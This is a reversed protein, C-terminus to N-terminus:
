ALSEWPGWLGTGGLGPQGVYIINAMATLAGNVQVNGPILNGGYTPLVVDNVYALVNANGYLNNIVMTDIATNASIGINTGALITLTDSATTAVLNQGAANVTSFSNLGSIFAANGILYAGQVNGSSTINGTATIQGATSINGGAVNGSVSLSTLTGVSTINAQAADTVTNATTATTATAASGAATAYAATAVTGSVNAGTINTM